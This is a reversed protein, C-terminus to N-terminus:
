FFLSDQFHQLFSSLSLQILIGLALSVLSQEPSPPTACGLSWSLWFSRPRREQYYQQGSITSYLFFPFDSSESGLTGDAAFGGDGSFVAGTAEVGEEVGIGASDGGVFTGSGFSFTPSATWVLSM